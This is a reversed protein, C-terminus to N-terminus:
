KKMNLANVEIDGSITGAVHVVKPRAPIVNFFNDSPRAGYPLDLWVFHGFSDATVTVVLENGQQDFDFNINAQPIDIESPLHTLTLDEYRVRGNKEIRAYMYGKDCELWPGAAVSNPPLLIDEGVGDGEGHMDACELFVTVPIEWLTDNVVYTRACGNEYRAFVALPSYAKKVWYYSPKRRMYYDIITWGHTGWCDSYMWFLSGACDFKRTRFHAIAERYGMAQYALSKYIYEEEDAPVGGFGLELHRDTMGGNFENDHLKYAESTFDLKGDQTYDLITEPLAYSLIGYESIFKGRDKRYNRFDAREMVDQAHISVDWAHKDGMDDGNPFDDGYPSSPWYPRTPDLKQCIEPLIEHYIKQGYGTGKRDPNNRSFYYEFMWDNENNGCWLVISPHFKLRKVAKEAEETVLECFWKKDDPYEACAFMFDQWVMIGMSDCLQYFDDDEYIGGGWIRMMNFNADAAETLLQAYKEYNVRALISDAPVWNAGKCFIDNGNISIIFSEDGSALPERKLAVERFGYPRNYECVTEDGCDITVVMDYLLPDGYGIPNWRELDDVTVTIDVETIGIALPTNAIALHQKTGRSFSVNIISDDVNEFSEIYLRVRVDACAESFEPLIEVDRVVARKYTDIHVGRWM